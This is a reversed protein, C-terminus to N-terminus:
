SKQPITINKMRKQDKLEDRDYLQKLIEAILATEGQIILDKIRGDFQM